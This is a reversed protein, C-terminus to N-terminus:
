DSSLVLKYHGPSFPLPIPNTPLKRSRTPMHFVKTKHSFLTPIPKITQIFPSILSAPSPQYLAGGGGIGLLKGRRTGFHVEPM